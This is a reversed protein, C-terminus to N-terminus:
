KKINKKTESSNTLQEVYNEIRKQDDPSIKLFKIGMGTSSPKAKGAQKYSWTVQADTEIPHSDLPLKFSIKLLTGIPKIDPHCIFAGGTSINVIRSLYYIGLTSLDVSIEIPARVGDRRRENQDTIEDKM